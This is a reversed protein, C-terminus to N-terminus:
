LKHEGDFSGDEAIEGAGLTTGYLGDKIIGFFGFRRRCRAFSDKSYLAACELFLGGL